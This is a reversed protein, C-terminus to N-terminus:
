PVPRYVTVESHVLDGRDSYTEMGSSILDDGFFWKVSNSGEKRKVDFIVANGSVKGDPYEVM